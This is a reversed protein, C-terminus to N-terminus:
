ERVRRKTVPVFLWQLSFASRPELPLRPVCLTSMTASTLARTRDLKLIETAM